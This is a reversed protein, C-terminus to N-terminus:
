VIPACEACRETVEEITREIQRRHREEHQAVFLAWQLMDIEGLARHPRKVLTLELDAGSRLAAKLKERSERLSAISVDVQAGQEPAVMEPAALRTASDVLGFEDLSSLVSAESAAPGIDHSRAWAVSREMMHAVGTEVKALHALIEAASWEGNKPRISAVAPSISNATELLRARSADMYDFLEAIRHPLETM